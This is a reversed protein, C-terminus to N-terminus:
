ANNLFARTIKGCFGVAPRIGHEKQYAVVAKLTKPGFLPYTPFVGLREQLNVVDRGITGLYLDRDFFYAGRFPEKADFHKLPDAMTYNLEGLKKVGLGLHLHSGDLPRQPTPKPSVLGNNGIKGITDGQKYLIVRNDAPDKIHTVSSLHLFLLGYQTGTEPDTTDIQARAYQTAGFPSDVRSDYVVGDWPFPWVCERGWTQEPTGCTIDIGNHFRTSTSLATSFDLQEEARFGQTIIPNLNSPVRIPLKYM